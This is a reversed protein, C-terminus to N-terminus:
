GSRGHVAAAFADGDIGTSTTDAGPALLVTDGPRAAAAAVEVVRHMLAAADVPGDQDPAVTFVPVDPAHRAFAGRITVDTGPTAGTGGTVSGAEVVVVARCRDHAAAVLADLAAPVDQGCAAAVVWVGSSVAGLAARVAHLDTAAADDVWHVGALIAVAVARHPLPASARLGDRVAEQPVGLARALAAAALADTVAAPGPGASGSGASAPTLDALTALEAASTAREVIFARDVLLEEVVGVQGISPMGLTVGIARAGEVVEAELVLEETGPDAVTYVCALRANAYAAGLGRARHAQAPPLLDGGVNLVAAATASMSRAGRLAAGDAGVVVVDVTDAHAPDMVVEVLSLGPAGAVVPRLGAARLVAALMATTSAVGNVGAVCLWPVERARTDRLRWGLEVEGWVPIGAAAAARLLPADDGFSASAVVLATGEPLVATAGRHIEVRAGLVELLQARELQGADADEALATVQAGLHTLNDAAAMGADDFGLVTVAVGDWDAYRHLGAVPDTM